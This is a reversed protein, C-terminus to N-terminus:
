KGGAAAAPEPVTLGLLDDLQRGDDLEIGVVTVSPDARRVSAVASSVAEVLGLADRDFGAYAVGSRFSATCDNAEGYLAESFGEFTEYTVGALQLTFGYTTM